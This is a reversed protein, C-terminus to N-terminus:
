AAMREVSSFRELTGGHGCNWCVICKTNQPRLTFKCVPCRFFHSRSLNLKVSKIQNKV